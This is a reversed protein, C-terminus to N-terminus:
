LRVQKEPAGMCHNNLKKKELKKGKRQNSKLLQKHLWLDGCPLCFALATRQHGPPLSATGGGWNGEATASSRPQCWFWRQHLSVPTVPHSPTEAPVSRCTGETELNIASIPLLLSAGATQQHRRAAFGPQLCLPTGRDAPGPPQLATAAGRRLKADAGHQQRAEVTSWAQQWNLSSLSFCCHQSIHLCQAPWPPLSPDASNEACQTQTVRPPSRPKRPSFAAHYSHHIPEKPLLIQPHQQHSPQAHKEWKM